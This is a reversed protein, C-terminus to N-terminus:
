QRKWQKYIWDMLQQKLPFRMHILKMIIQYTLTSKLVRYEEVEHRYLDVSSDNTDRQAKVAHHYSQYILKKDYNNKYCLRSETLRLNENYLIKYEAIMEDLSKLEVKKVVNKLNEFIQADNLVSDVHSRFEESAQELSVSYGCQYRELREGLAGINIVIVPKEGIIAESLTYSYTEPWISLIGIMDINHMELLMQLDDPQYSGIATYNSRTLNKLKEDGITGFTFWHVSKNGKTVIDYVVRSGKSIDLGGIFAINLKYEATNQQLEFAIPNNASEFCMGAENLIVLSLFVKGQAYEPIYGDFRAVIGKTYDISSLTIPIFMTMATEKRLKLYIREKKLDIQFANIWGSVRYNSDERKVKDIGFSFEDRKRFEAITKDTKVQDTDVGHEIVLFKEKYEPFYEAYIDCASQSPFLIKECVSLCKGTRKKWSSVYNINEAIGQVSRLCKKCQESELENCCLIGDQSIMKITPCLYYYDHATLIIPIKKEEALDFIDFSLGIVHHVHILDIKFAELINELINRILRNSNLIFTDKEGIYFTFLYEKEEVYATLCLTDYNRAVVFVNYEDKLGNKLDRVHFQTGGVSDNKDPRFDSHLIYLINKKGNMLDFFLGVNEGIYGNPNDRCHVANKHMQVPYRETLIKEHERILKEKEKSVFSKTGSHYIYTDDCMVHIYGMQEARNCFDNEEGYGRQFTEADFGGIADIVERKVLMCFGHAVTIRPYDRFSCHEVIEAACDIDLYDPLINEECFVPVSCLTANNSVPTVTGIEQSSYACQLLKEVWNRTVVTDSNLLIVDNEDSQNMGLNINNSFGRNQENHFVIINKAVQSDLYIKIREDPSNDNVIIVRHRNLDTYKKVSNLCIQLDEYANYVPIIIDVTKKRENLNM